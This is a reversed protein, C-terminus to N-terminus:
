EQTSKYINWMPKFLIHIRYKIFAINSLHMPKLDLESIMNVEGRTTSHSRSLSRKQVEGGMGAGREGPQCKSMWKPSLELHSPAKEPGGCGDPSKSIIQAFPEIRIHSLTSINKQKNNHIDKKGRKDINERKAQTRCKRSM